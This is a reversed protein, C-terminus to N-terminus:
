LKATGEVLRQWDAQSFPKYSKARPHPVWLIKDKSGASGQEVKDPEVGENRLPVKNQKNNHGLNQEEIVRIFLPVAYKPLSKRAHVLLGAYDFSARNAPDIFLAACGARGDHSPLEVGYVNAEAVGKYRGLCEAVEATSVNEGKWRFTDGLRDMFYWRGDPTRRLADGTRYYRDGKTFVSEVFKARTSSPNNWYGPFAEPNDGVWVLIEGGEEYPVRKAFGTKPHRWVDGTEHDIAVPVYVKDMSRRMVAGHHGVAAATYAGHNKNWLAFMGETSNFFEIITPINFRTRFAEWVDPRMGNGWVSKVRHDREHPHPPGNVLYRATEGVYVFSTAGSDHIDDWFKSVSFKRGICVTLGSILCGVLVTNGTGHYLPMCDYWRDGGPGVKLGNVQQRYPGISWARMTPFPCAKPLGTTGSTYILCMPFDPKVNQRYKREPRKPQLQQLQAKTEQNLICIKMGLENEIRSRSEEIRAQCEADDGDVILLRSGSLKLCHILADGSLNYNILAPATGIAWSGTYSFVFEPSNMLYFAVLEGSQVGQSLFFQAYRCANDYTEQWTYCGMRSWICQEDHPMRKAQQEFFYWLCIRNAKVAAEFHKTAQRVRWMNILDKSVHHKADLYAATATVGAALALEM